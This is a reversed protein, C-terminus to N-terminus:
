LFVMGDKGFKVAGKVHEFVQQRKRSLMFTDNRPDSLRYVYHELKEIKLHFSDSLM